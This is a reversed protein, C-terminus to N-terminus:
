ENFGLSSLHMEREEGARVYFRRSRPKGDVLLEVPVLDSIPGENSVRLASDSIAKVKM